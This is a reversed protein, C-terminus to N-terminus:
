LEFGGVFSDIIRDCESIRTPKSVVYNYAYFVRALYLEPALICPRFLTPFSWNFGQAWWIRFHETPVFSDRKWRFLVFIFINFGMDKRDTPFGVEVIKKPILIEKCRGKLDFIRKKTELLCFIRWKKTWLVDNKHSSKSLNNDHSASKFSLAERRFSM